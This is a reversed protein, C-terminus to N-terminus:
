RQPARRASSSSFETIQGGKAHRKHTTASAVTAPKSRTVIPSAGGGASATSVIASGASFLAVAAAAAILTKMTVDEQIRVRWYKAPLHGM